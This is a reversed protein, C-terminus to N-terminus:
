KDPSSLAAGVDFHYRVIGLDVKSFLGGKDTFSVEGNGDLKIEFKQQNVATPALLAFEVGREFWEPRGGESFSVQEATKSKHQKGQNAGYGIAIVIVLREGEKVDAPVGKKDFMGAWCTNLGMAQAKLVVKEGYYGVREDLNDGDPGVCAIVSPASGLGMARSIIKGFTKGPNELFQLNLRGEKNVEAIFAKLEEAKEEEIKKNLYARVSHRARIAETENM